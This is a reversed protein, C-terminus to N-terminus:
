LEVWDAQDLWTLWSKRQEGKKEQVTHMRHAETPPGM